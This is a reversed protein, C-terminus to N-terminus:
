RVRDEVAFLDLPSRAGVARAVALMTDERPRRVKGREILGVQKTSLGALRAVDERSLGKEIRM